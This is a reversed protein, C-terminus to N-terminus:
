TDLEPWRNIKLKKIADKIEEISWYENENPIEEVENAQQETEKWVYNIVM